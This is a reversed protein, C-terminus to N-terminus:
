FQITVRYRASQIFSEDQVQPEDVALLAIRYLYFDPAIDNLLLRLEPKEMEACLQSFYRRASVGALEYANSHFQIELSCEWTHNMLIIEEDATVTVLVYPYVREGDEVPLYLQLEPHREALVQRLTESFSHPNM